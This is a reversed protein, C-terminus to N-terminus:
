ADRRRTASGGLEGPLPGPGRDAGRLIGCVGVGPMVRSGGHGRQGQGGVAAGPCGAGGLGGEEWELDQEGLDQPCGGLGGGPGLWAAQKCSRTVRSPVTNAHYKGRRRCQPSVPGGSKVYRCGLEGHSPMQLHHLWPTPRRRRFPVRPRAPLSVLGQEERRPFARPHPPVAVAVLGRPGAQRPGRRRAGRHRAEPRWFVLAAQPCRHQSRMELVSLRVPPLRQPGPGARWVAPESGSAPPGRCM